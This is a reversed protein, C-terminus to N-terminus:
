GIQRVYMLIVVAGMIVPIIIILTFAVWLNAQLSTWTTNAVASWGAQTQSTILSQVVIIGILISVLIGVLAGIIGAQMGIGRKDRWLRLGTIWEELKSM